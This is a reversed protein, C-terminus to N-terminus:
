SRSGLTLISAHGNIDILRRLVIEIGYGAQVPMAKLDDTVSGITAPEVVKALQVLHRPQRGRDRRRREFM